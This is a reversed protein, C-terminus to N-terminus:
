FFELYESIILVPITNASPHYDPISNLLPRHKESKVREYLVESKAKLYFVVGGKKLNSMNDPNLVVGGGCDIIFNEKKSVDEVIAKVAGRFYPEGSDKFIDAIPRKEREVILADTSVLNRKLLIALKKGVVSKGAGMFGVLVINKM